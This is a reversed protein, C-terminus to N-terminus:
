IIHGLKFRKNGSGGGQPKKGGGKKASGKRKDRREDLKEVQKSILESMKGTTSGYIKDWKSESKPAEEEPQEAKQAAPAPVSYDGDDGANEAAKTVHQLRRQEKRSLKMEKGGYRETMSKPLQNGPSGSVKSRDSKKKKKDDDFMLNGDDVAPQITEVM